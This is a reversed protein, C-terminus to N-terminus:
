GSLEDCGNERWEWRCGPVECHVYRHGSWKGTAKSCWCPMWGVKVNPPKLEHGNGCHTPPNWDM